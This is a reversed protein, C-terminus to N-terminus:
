HSCIARWTLTVHTGVGGNWTYHASAQEADFTGFDVQNLSSPDSWTARAPNLGFPALSVIHDGQACKLELPIPHADGEGKDVITVSATRVYLGNSAGPEGQLGQPGPLGQHGPAGTAGTDGKM